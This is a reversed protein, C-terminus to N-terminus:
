VPVGTDRIPLEGRRLRKSAGIRTDINGHLSSVYRRHSPPVDMHMQPSNNCQQHLDNPTPHPTSIRPSYTFHTCDPQTAPWLHASSPPTTHEPAHAIANHHAHHAHSGWRSEMPTALPTDSPHSMHTSRVTWREWIRCDCRRRNITEWPGYYSTMVVLCSPDHVAEIALLRRAKWSCWFLGVTDLWALVLSLLTFRHEKDLAAIRSHHVQVINWIHLSSALNV